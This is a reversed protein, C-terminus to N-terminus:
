YTPVRFTEYGEFNEKSTTMLGLDYQKYNPPVSMTKADRTCPPRPPNVPPTHPLVARYPLDGTWALIYIASSMTQVFLIKLKKVIKGHM